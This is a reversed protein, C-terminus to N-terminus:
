GLWHLSFSDYAHLQFREFCYTISLCPLFSYSVNKLLIFFSMKPSSVVLFKPKLINSFVGFCACRCTNSAWHCFMISLAWNSLSIMIVFLLAFCQYMSDIFAFVCILFMIDIKCRVLCSSHILGFVVENVNALIARNCIHNMRFYTTSLNCTREIWCLRTFQNMSSYIICLPLLGTYKSM